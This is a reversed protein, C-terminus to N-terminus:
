ISMTSRTLHNLLFSRSVNHLRVVFLRDVYWENDPIYDNFLPMLDSRNAWIAPAVQSVIPSEETTPSDSAGNRKKKKKSGPDSDNVALLLSLYSDGM